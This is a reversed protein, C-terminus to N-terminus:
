KESSVPHFHRHCGQPPSLCGMIDGAHARSCRPTERTPEQVGMKITLNKKKLVSASLENMGRMGLRVGDTM